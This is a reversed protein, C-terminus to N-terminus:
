GLSFLEGKAIDSDYVLTLWEGTKPGGDSSGAIQGTVVWTRGDDSTGRQLIEVDVEIWFPNPYRDPYPNIKNPVLEFRCPSTETAPKRLLSATLLELTLGSVVDVLGLYVSRGDWRGLQM